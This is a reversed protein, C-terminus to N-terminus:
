KNMLCEVLGRIDFHLIGLGGCVAFAPYRFENTLLWFLYIFLYFLYMFYM